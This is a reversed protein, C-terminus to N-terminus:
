GKRIKAIDAKSIGKVKQLEEDSAKQIAAVSGFHQLLAKKKVPGIGPIDDLKSTLLKKARVKRHFAIASRHAEDRLRQLFFLLPSKVDLLIPNKQYPVYIKEQTLGKDHRAEEKTLAIVDVSAIGLEQFVDLAIQLQGKGGDLVLLDPFENMEKCRRFHRLLVEKMASYDDGQTRVKFLRLHSKAKKGDISCVLSAVPDTGAINSTDLCEIKKPFRNLQLTEVLELLIKDLHSRQEQEQRLLSLANKHAMELLDAKKGKQPLEISIKKGIADSLIESVLDQDTIAPVLILPPAKDKYNQLLFSTIIEGEESALFHFSFHESGVLCSNRFLLLSIMVHDHEQSLGVVDCDPIDLGAVHQKETIHDIHRILSLLDQAKEFQLDEAAQEMQRHLEKKLDKDQGKLLKRVAHVHTQYEEESCKQVCPALCRKMDFLLCPRVRNALEADSCQRLPFIKAILDFIQRAALASTYPGFSSGEEDIAGKHRVLRLMPWQHHTLLLSIFTKDDKLLVNYKPKHKKILTNELLLADKETLAIITDIHSVQATLYPVMERSDKSKAFYQKLRARLNKAKGVYLVEGKENKMLYVGPEQSYASLSNPDFSM